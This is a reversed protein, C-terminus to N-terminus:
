FQSGPGYMHPGFFYGYMEVSYDFKGTLPDTATSTNPTIGSLWGAYVRSADTLFDLETWNVPSPNQGRFVTVNNIVSTYTANNGTEYGIPSPGRGLVDQPGSVGSDLSM